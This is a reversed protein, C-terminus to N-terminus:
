LCRPKHILQQKTSQNELGVMGGGVYFHFPYVAPLVWIMEALQVEHTCYYSGYINVLLLFGSPGVVLPDETPARLVLSWQKCM